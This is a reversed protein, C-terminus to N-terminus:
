RKCQEKTKHRKVDINKKMRQREKLWKRWAESENDNIKTARGTQNSNLVNPDYDKCIM